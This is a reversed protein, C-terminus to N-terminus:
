IIFLDEAILKKKMENVMSDLFIEVDSDNGKSMIVAEKIQKINSELQKINKTITDKSYIDVFNSFTQKTKM